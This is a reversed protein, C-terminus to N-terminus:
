LGSDFSLPEKYNGIPELRVPGAAGTDLPAVPLEITQGDFVARAFREKSLTTGIKRFFPLLDEGVAISMDEVTEDMTLKRDPEHRWRTHQVWRWRPYWTPGYRDDLKQWVWWIKTWDKGKGWKERNEGSPLAMDLGNADKDFEFIKNPQHSVRRGTPLAAAKGQFWGAHAEGRNGYLWSGALEGNGNPPGGMTHALEHAFISLVGQGSLSIIGVEKPLYANVAWGGGGGASLILHMPEDPAASPLWGEIRSKVLPMDRTICQLLEEKQNKAYYVIVNGIRESMEPYIPGGGSAERPLRAPGGVPRTGAAVWRIMQSLSSIIRERHASSAQSRDRPPEIYKVSGIILVRGKGYQRRAILPRGQSGSLHSQWDSSLELVPMTVEEVTDN